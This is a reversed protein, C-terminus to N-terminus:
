TGEPASCLRQGNTFCFRRGHTLAKLRMYEVYQADEDSLVLLEQNGFFATALSILDAEHKVAGPPEYNALLQDHYTMFARFARSAMADHRESAVPWKSKTLLTACLISEAAKHVGGPALRNIIRRIVALLRLYRDLALKPHTDLGTDLVSDPVGLSEQIM